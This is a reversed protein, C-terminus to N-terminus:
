TICVCVEELRDICWQPLDRLMSRDVTSAIVHTLEAPKLEQQGVDASTCSTSSQSEPSVAAAAPDPSDVSASSSCASSGMRVDRRM